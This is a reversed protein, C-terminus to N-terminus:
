SEDSAATVLWFPGSCVDPLNKRLLAYNTADDEATLARGRVSAADGITAVVARQPGHVIRPLPDEFSVLHDPPWVPLYGTGDSNTLRLCGDIIALPGTLTAEATVWSEIVPTWRLLRMNGQPTEIVNLTLRDDPDRQHLRVGTGVIWRQGPCRESGTGSASREWEGELGPAAEGGGMAVEAGVRAVATGTKDLVEVTSEVTRLTFSAPWVPLVFDGGETGRIYLCGDRLLLKGILLATMSAEDEWAAPQQPFYIDSTAATASEASVPLATSSMNSSVGEGCATLLLSLWVWSIRISLLRHM